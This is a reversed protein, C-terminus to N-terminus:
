LLTIKGIVIIRLRSLLLMLFFFFKYYYSFAMAYSIFSITTDYHTNKNLKGQEQMYSFLSDLFSRRDTENGATYLQLFLRCFIVNNIIVLVYTSTSFWTFYTRRTTKNCRVEIVIMNNQERNVILHEATRKEVSSRVKVIYVKISSFKFVSRQIQDTVTPNPQEFRTQRTNSRLPCLQM